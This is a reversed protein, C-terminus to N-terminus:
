GPHGPKALEALCGLYTAAFDAAASPDLLAHRHRICIRLGGAATVV